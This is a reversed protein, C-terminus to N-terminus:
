ASPAGPEADLPSESVRVRSNMEQKKSMISVALSHELGNQDRYANKLMM